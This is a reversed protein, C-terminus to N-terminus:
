SQKSAGANYMAGPSHSSGLQLSFSFTVEENNRHYHVSLNTLNYLGFLIVSGIVFILHLSGTSVEVLILASRDVSLFNALQSQYEFLDGIIISSPDVDVTVNIPTYFKEDYAIAPFNIDNVKLISVADTYDDLAQILEQNNSTLKKFVEFNLLNWHTPYKKLTAFIDEVSKSKKLENELTPTCPIGKATNADNLLVSCIDNVPHNSVHKQITVALKTFECTYAISYHIHIFM